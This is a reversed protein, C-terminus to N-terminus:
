EKYKEWLTRSFNSPGRHQKQWAAGLRAVDAELNTVKTARRKYEDSSVGLAAFLRYDREPHPNNAKSAASDVPVAFSELGNGALFAIAAASDARSLTALALYNLGPERPDGALVGKSTLSDDNRSSPAAGKSTPAKPATERLVKSAPSPTPSPQSLPDAIAPTPREFRSFEAEARSQGTSVGIIWAALAVIIALAVGISLANVSIRMTSPGLWAPAWAREPSSDLQQTAPPARGPSTSESHGSTDSRRASLAAPSTGQGVVLAAADEKLAPVATGSPVVKADASPVPAAAPQLRVQVIPKSPTELPAELKSTNGSKGQVLDFLPTTRRGASGM